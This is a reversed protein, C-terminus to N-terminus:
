LPAIVLPFQRELRVTRMDGQVYTVNQLNAEALRTQGYQTMKRSPELAVVEHGARALAASVRATGAGLELVPGGYDDALRTYFPLDDRYNKYQLDYLEALPDYNM